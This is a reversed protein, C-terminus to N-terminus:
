FTGNLSYIGLMYTLYESRGTNKDTYFSATLDFGEDALSKQILGSAKKSYSLWPLGQVWDPDSYSIAKADKSEKLRDNYFTCAGSNQDYLNLVCLNALIQCMQPNKDKWCGVAGM